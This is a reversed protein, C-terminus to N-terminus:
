HLIFVHKNVPVKSPVLDQFATLDDRACAAFAATVEEQTMRFIFWDFIQSRPLQSLTIERISLPCSATEHRHLPYHWYVSSLLM